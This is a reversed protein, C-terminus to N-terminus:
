LPRLHKWLVDVEGVGEFFVSVFRDKAGKPPPETKGRAGVKLAPHYFSLDVTLEVETM